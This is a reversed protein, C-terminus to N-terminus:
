NQLIRSLIQQKLEAMGPTAIHRPRPLNIPLDLDVRGDQVVIVRDGLMVAEEVDHTVLLATFQQEQWLMEILRQMDIRTLADLAGLPEDLLLLQPQTVLARALAVRQQQGGSLVTTWDQARSDLGVQQLAWHSRPRAQEKLGLAVNEIVKRWPLLRSDQFMVRAKANLGNLRQGGLVIEGRTPTELGALLRLLTSKGCGSKGVVAVFGGPLIELSFNDLVTLDGFAKTIGNLWVHTGIAATQTPTYSTQTM